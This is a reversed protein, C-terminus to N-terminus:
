ACSQSGGVSGARKGWDRRVFTTPMGSVRLLITLISNSLSKKFEAEGGSTFDQGYEDGNSGRPRCAQISGLAPDLELAKCAAVNSKTSTKAPIVMLTQYCGSYPM